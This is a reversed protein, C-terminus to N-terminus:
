ATFRVFQVIPTLDQALENEEARCISVEIASGDWFEIRVPPVGGLMARLLPALTEAVSGSLVDTAM